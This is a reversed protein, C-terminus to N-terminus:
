RDDGTGRIVGRAARDRLKALNGAAVDELTLGAGVVAATLVWLCDGAEKAFRVRDADTMAAALDGVESLGAPDVPGGDGRLHKAVAGAFEGRDRSAALEAALRGALRTHPGDPMAGLVAGLAGALEGAEECLALVPYALAAERPYRAFALAERQYDHLTM